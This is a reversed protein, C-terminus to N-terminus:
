RENSHHNVLNIINYLCNCSETYGQVNYGFKNGNGQLRIYMQMYFFVSISSPFRIDGVAINHIWLIHSGLLFVEDGERVPKDNEGTVMTVPEGSQKKEDFCYCSCQWTLYLSRLKHYKSIDVSLVDPILSM